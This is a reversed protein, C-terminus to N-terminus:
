SEAVEGDIKQTSIEFSSKFIPSNTMTKYEKSHHIVMKGEIFEIIASDGKADSISLHLSAKEGKPMSPAVIQFYPPKELTEVVEKVSAFNDLVYQTIAAISMTPNTS